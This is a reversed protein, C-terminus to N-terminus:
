IHILSLNEATINAFLTGSNTSLKLTNMNDVHGNGRIWFVKYTLTASSIAPEANNTLWFKFTHETEPAWNLGNEGVDVKKFFSNSSDETTDATDGGLDDSGDISYHLTQTLNRKDIYPISLQMENNELDATLSCDLIELSRAVKQVASKEITENGELSVTWSWAIGSDGSFASGDANNFVNGDAEYFVGYWRTDFNGDGPVVRFQTGTSKEEMYVGNGDFGVSARDDNGVKTDACSGIKVTKVTDTTNHLQYKFVLSRGNDGFEPVIRIQVGDVTYVKGYVFGAGENPISTSSGSDVQVYTRYGGDAYTTMIYDGNIIGGANFSSGSAVSYNMFDNSGSQPIDASIDTLEEAANAVIATGVTLLDGVNAPMAGAVMAFSLAGAAVRKWSNKM